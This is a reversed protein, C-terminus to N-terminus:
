SDSDLLGPSHQMATQTTFQVLGHIVLSMSQLPIAGEIPTCDRIVALLVVLPADCWDVM